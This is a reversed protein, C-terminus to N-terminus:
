IEGGKQRSQPFIFERTILLRVIRQFEPNAFDQKVSKALNGLKLPCMKRLYHVFSLLQRNAMTLNRNNRTSTMLHNDDTEQRWRFIKAFSIQLEENLHIEPAIKIPQYGASIPSDM